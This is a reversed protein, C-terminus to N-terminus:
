NIKNVQISANKIYKSCHSAIKIVLTYKEVMEAMTMNPNQMSESIKDINRLNKKLSFDKPLEINDTDLYNMGDIDEEIGRIYDQCSAIMRSAKRYNEMCRDIDDSFKDQNKIISNIESLKTEM